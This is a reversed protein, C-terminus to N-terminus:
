QYRLLHSTGNEDIDAVLLSQQLFWIGQIPTHIWKATAEQDFVGSLLIEDQPLSSLSPLSPTSSDGTLQSQLSLYHLSWTRTPVHVDHHVVATKPMDFELWALWSNADALLILPNTSETALLSTSIKSTRDLQELMWGSHSEDGYATYYVSTTDGVASVVHHYPTSTFYTAKVVAPPQVVSAGSSPGLTSNQAILLLATIGGMMFIMLFLAAIGVIAFPSLRAPRFQRSPRRIVPLPGTSASSFAALPHTKQRSQAHEQVYPQLFAPVPPITTPSTELAHMHEKALAQMVRTHMDPPPEIEPLLGLHEGVSNTYALLARCSSCQALHAALEIADNGDNGDDKLDRYAAILM